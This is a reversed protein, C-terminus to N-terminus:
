LFINQILASALFPSLHEQLFLKVKKRNPFSIRGCMRQAEDLSLLQKQITYAAPNKPQVDNTYSGLHPRWILSLRGITTGLFVLQIGNMETIVAFRRPGGGGGIQRKMLSRFIHSAHLPYDLAQCAHRDHVHHQTVVQIRPCACTM